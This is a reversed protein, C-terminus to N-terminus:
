AWYMTKFIWVQGHDCITIASAPCAIDNMSQLLSIQMGQSYTPNSSLIIELYLDLSSLRYKALSSIIQWSCDRYAAFANPCSLEFVVTKVHIPDAPLPHEHADM